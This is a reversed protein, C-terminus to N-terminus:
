SAVERPAFAPARSIPAAALLRALSLPNLACLPETPHPGFSTGAIALRAGDAAALLAGLRRAVDLRTVLMRRAGLRAFEIAVEGAEAPDTGAAVVLVPEAHTADILRGLAALDDRDFPNAGATDIITATSPMEGIIRALAQPDEVAALPRGLIRTFAELQEFGGARKTDCSIAAVVEGRRHAAVMLKAATLTKGVGPPGVLMVPRRWPANGLPEFTLGADLAAALALEPTEHAFDAATRRLRSALAAPIGHYSLLQRLHEQDPTGTAEHLSEGGSEADTQDTQDGTWSTASEAAQDDDEAFGDADPDAPDDDLCMEEDPQEVAAVVQVGRGHRGPRTALIIADSGIEARVMDMARAMSDADFTRVRM